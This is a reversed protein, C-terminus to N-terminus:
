APHQSRGICAAAPRARTGYSGARRASESCASPNLTWAPSRSSNNPRNSNRCQLFGGDSRLCNNQGGRNGRPLFCLSNWVLLFDKRQHWVKSRDCQENFRPYRSYVTLFLHQCDANSFCDKARSPKSFRLQRFAFDTSLNKTGRVPSSKKPRLRG